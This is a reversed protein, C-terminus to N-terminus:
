RDGGSAATPLTRTYRQLLAPRAAFGEKFRLLGRNLDGAFQQTSVGFSAYSRGERAAAALFAHYLLNTPRLEAHDYDTAIYQTHVATGYDFLVTGAILDDGHFVGLLRVRDGFLERLLLIEELSHVPTVQHRGALNKALMAWYGAFDTSFEARLEARLAQTTQSRTSSRYAAMLGAEDLGALPVFSTTDQVVSYGRLSLAFEAAQHPSRHAFWPPLTVTASVAGDAAWAGEAEALMEELLATEADPEFVFGGFTSGPHSVIGGDRWAAPIVGVLRRKRFFLLSADRFRDRHYSYFRRTHLFCGNASREVLDDWASDHEASYREVRIM